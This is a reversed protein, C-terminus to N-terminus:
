CYRLVERRRAMGIMGLLGSGFLWITAPIPVVASYHINDLGGSHGSTGTAVVFAIDAQARSVTMTEFHNESLISTTYTAILAGSSSFARLVGVDSTDDAIFDISFFDTRQSFDVRLSVPISGENWLHGIENRQGTFSSYGDHGFVLTGTSASFNGYFGYVPDQPDVAFVNGTTNYGDGTATFTLGPIANSLNTGETFSDPDVSIVAANTNGAHLIVASACIVGLLHDKM